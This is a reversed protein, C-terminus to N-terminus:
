FLEGQGTPPKKRRAKAPKARKGKRPEAKGRTGTQRAEEQAREANLVYLRDIVEDEFAQLAERDADTKPCYPPVEIDSWGYVDLVARDMQEHLDRLELIRPDTCSPDKLANYTKTLGQDTDVMFRARTEYLKEGIAEFHEVTYLSGSGDRAPHFLDAVIVDYDAESSRVFRRADAVFIRLNKREQPDRNAERFHPLMDVVETVLEVGDAMLGPHDASAGFTIATGLGLFLARGPKPHLLLPIHGM